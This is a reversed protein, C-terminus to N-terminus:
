TVGKWGFEPTTTKGLMVGGATLLREVAPHSEDPVFKEYMKSGRMTRVGKTFVLDKVSFPVGHLPGLSKKKRMVAKEAARAQDMALDPTPTCYANIKPNVAQIRELLAATIEVPSLKRNRIAKGTETAPLYCLDTPNM